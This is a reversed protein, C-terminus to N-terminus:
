VTHSKVNVNKDERVSPSCGSAMCCPPWEGCSSDKLRSALPTTVTSSRSVYDHQLGRPSTTVTCSSMVYDHQLGRPSTTVPSSNVYDHQLGRTSHHRHAQQERLQAAIWSTFHYFLRAQIASIIEDVQCYLLSIM